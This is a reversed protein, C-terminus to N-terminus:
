LYEKVRKALPSTMGPVSAIEEVQAEKIGRVSGFRKLLARKRRAGIGPIADLASALSDRKHM